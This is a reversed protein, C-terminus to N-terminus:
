SGQLITVMSKRKRRRRPQVAALPAAASSFDKASSVTALVLAGIHANLFERAPVGYDKEGDLAGENNIDLARSQDHTISLDPDTIKHGFDRHEVMALHEVSACLGNRAMSSCEVGQSVEKDLRANDKIIGYNETGLVCVKDNIRDSNLHEALISNSVLETRSQTTMPNIAEGKKEGTLQAGVTELKQIEFDPESTFSFESVYDSSFSDVDDSESDSVVRSSTNRKGREIPQTAFLEEVVRISYLSGNTKVKMVRNAPEPSMTLLLVRAVDLREKNFTNDDM